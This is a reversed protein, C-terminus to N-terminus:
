RQCLFVPPAQKDETQQYGIEIWKDAKDNYKLANSILNSFIEGIRARDCWVTPLPRPIRITIQKEELRGQLLELVSELISNLDIEAFALDVRGARSYHLLSEILTDM